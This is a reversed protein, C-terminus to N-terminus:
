LCNEGLLVSGCLFPAGDNSHYTPYPSAKMMNWVSKINGKGLYLSTHATGAGGHHIVANCVPFLLEHAVSIALIILRASGVNTIDEERKIYHTPYQKSLLTISREAAQSLKLQFCIRVDSGSLAAAILQLIKEIDSRGLAVSGFGMYLLPRPSMSAMCQFANKMSESLASTVLTCAGAVECSRPWDKPLPHLSPTCLLTFPAGQISFYGSAPIPKLGLVQVRFNNVLSQLTLSLAGDVIDFSLANQKSWGGELTANLFPHPFAKTRVFPMVFMCHYPIGAKEAISAYAFVVPNSILANFRVGPSSTYAAWCSSMMESVLASYFTLRSPFKRVTSVSTSSYVERMFESWDERRGNLSYYDIGDQSTVLDRFCEHTALRM